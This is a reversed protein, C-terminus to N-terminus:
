SFCVFLVLMVQFLGKVAIPNRKGKTSGGLGSETIELANFGLELEM